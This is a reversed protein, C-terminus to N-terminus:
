RPLSSLPQMPLQPAFAFLFLHLLLLQVLLEDLGGLLHHPLGGTHHRHEALLSRRLGLPEEGLGLRHQRQHLPHDRLRAAPDEFAFFNGGVLLDELMRGVRSEASRPTWEGSVSAVSLAAPTLRTAMGASPESESSRRASCFVRGQRRPYRHRAPM